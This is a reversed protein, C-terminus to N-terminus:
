LSHFIDVFIDVIKQIFKIQGSNQIKEQVWDIKEQVLRCSYIRVAMEFSLWAKYSRQTKAWPNLNAVM